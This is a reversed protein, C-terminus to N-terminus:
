EQGSGTNLQALSDVAVFRYGASQLMPILRDIAEVTQQRHGGKAGNGDHFILITGPKTKHVARQAMSVASPQFIERESGFDGSVATLGHTQLNNILAPQRFLWPSRFWRPTIGVVRKITIQTREIEEEFRPDALYKGFVHSYSHNGITHGESVMRRVTDPFQEVHRGVLFFTAHVGHRQLVDLLRSTWPENPGDDFTLAVLRERTPLRYPFQGFWQSWPSFFLYFIASGIIVVAGLSAILGFM